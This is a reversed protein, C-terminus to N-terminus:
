RKQEYLLMFQFSTYRLVSIAVAEAPVGSYFCSDGLM